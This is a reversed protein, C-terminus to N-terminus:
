TVVRCTYTGCTGSCYWVRTVVPCHWVSTVVSCYWMNSGCSMVVREIDYLVTYWMVMVVPCVVVSTVVTGCMIQTTHTSYHYWACLDSQCIVVFTQYVNGCPDYLYQVVCTQCVQWVSRIYSVHITCCGAM